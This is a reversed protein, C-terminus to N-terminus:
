SFAVHGFRYGSVYSGSVRTMVGGSDMVSQEQSGVTRTSRGDGCGYLASALVVGPRFHHWSTRGFSVPRWVRFYRISSRVVYKWTEEGDQVVLDGLSEPGTCQRIKLPLNDLIRLRPVRYLDPGGCLIHRIGFRRLGNALAIFQHPENPEEKLYHPRVDLGRFYDGGCSELFEGDVFTKDKNISFGLFELTAIVDSASDRPCIIDDGFTSVARSHFSGDNMSRRSCVEAVVRFLLTELEFTFGNGMSSFKELKVWKGKVLTFPSRLSDLLEFWDSPLLLKVLNYCVTDSANSLDITALKKTMSGLRALLRHFQQQCKKDWGYAKFLRSSIDGGVGFQFFLNISPEICIGRLKWADKPVTTFRNGRVIAEVRPAYDEDTCNKGFGPAVEVNGILSVDRYVELGAAAYRSWATLDWAHLCVRAKPTLTYSESMKDPITILSGVDLFTSGPGFKPKLSTIKPCKGLVRRVEKRLEGILHAVGEGMIKVDHLLPSLHENARYCQRESAWFAEVAKAELDIGLDFGPFKKFFAAIQLDGSLTRACRYHRVEVRITTLGRWDDSELCRLAKMAVPTGVKWCLATFSKRVSRDLLNSTM